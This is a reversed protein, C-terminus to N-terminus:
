TTQGLGREDLVTADLEHQLREPTNWACPRGQSTCPAGPRSRPHVPFTAAAIGAVAGRRQIRPRAGM